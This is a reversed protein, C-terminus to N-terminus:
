SNVACAVCRCAKLGAEVEARSLRGNGDADLLALLGALESETPPPEGPRAALM